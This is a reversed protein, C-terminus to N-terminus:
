TKTKLSIYTSEPFLTIQVTQDTSFIKANAITYKFIIIYQYAIKINELWM